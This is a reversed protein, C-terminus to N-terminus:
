GGEPIFKGYKWLTSDWPRSLRCRPDNELIQRFMTGSSPQEDYPRIDFHADINIIGLSKIRVWSVVLVLIIVM